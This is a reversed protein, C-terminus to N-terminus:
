GPASTPLTLRSFVLNQPKRQSSHFASNAINRSGTIVFILYDAMEPWVLAWCQPREGIFAEVITPQCKVAQFFREDNRGKLPLDRDV